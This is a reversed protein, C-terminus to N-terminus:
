KFRTVWIKLCPSSILLHLFICHKTESPKELAVTAEVINSHDEAIGSHYPNLSFVLRSHMFLLPSLIIWCFNDSGSWISLVIGFGINNKQLKKRDIKWVSGLMNNKIKLDHQMHLFAAMVISKLPAQYWQQIM